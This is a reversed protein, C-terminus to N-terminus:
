PEVWLHWQAEQFTFETVWRRVSWALIDALAAGFDTCLLAQPRFEGTPDRVPVWRLPM